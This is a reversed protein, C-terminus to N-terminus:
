RAQFTLNSIARLLLGKKDLIIKCYAFGDLMNLFEDTNLDKLLYGNAGAQVAAFLDADDDM